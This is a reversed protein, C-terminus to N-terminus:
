VHYFLTKSIKDCNTSVYSLRYLLKSNVFLDYTRTRSHAFVMDPLARRLRIVCKIDNQLSIFNSYKQIM